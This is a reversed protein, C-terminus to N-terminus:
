GPDDDRRLNGRIGALLYPHRDHLIRTAKGGDDLVM